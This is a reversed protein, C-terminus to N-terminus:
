GPKKKPATRPARKKAAPSKAPPKSAAADSGAAPKKAAPKKDPTNKVAPEKASTKKVRPPKPSAVPREVGGVVPRVVGGPGPRTGGGPAPPNTPAPAPAPAPVPATPPALLESAHIMVRVPQQRILHALQAANGAWPTTNPLEPVSGTPRVRVSAHSAGAFDVPQDFGFRPETPQQQLVFYWGPNGIADNPDLDFGFFSVDPELSGSFLPAKQEGPGDPPRRQLDTGGRESRESGGSPAPGGESRGPPPGEAVGRVAYVATGPYRQLLVSRLLLVLPQQSSQGSQPANHGLRRTGWQDIPAIDPPMGARAARWFREFHTGLEHALPFDRWLLERTMEVNLGLMFAEIFRPNAQLLAVTDAAVHQLGPLLWDQSLRALPQSAPMAYRPVAGLAHGLPASGDAATPVALAPISARLRLQLAPLPDLQQVLTARQSTLLV